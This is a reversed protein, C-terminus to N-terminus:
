PRVEQALMTVRDHRHTVVAGTLVGGLFAFAILTLAIFSGIGHTTM